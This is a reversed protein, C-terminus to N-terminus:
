EKILKSSAMEHLQSAVESSLKMNLKKAEEEIAGPPHNLTVEPFPKNNTFSIVISKALKERDTKNGGGHKLKMHLNLSGESGYYKGCSAYPCLENKNIEKACRRNHKKRHEKKEETDSRSYQSANMQILNRYHSNREESIKKLEELLSQNEMFAMWYQKYYDTDPEFEPVDNM